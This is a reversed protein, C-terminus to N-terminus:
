ALAPLAPGRLVPRALRLPVQLEPVQLVARVAPMASVPVPLLRALQVRRAAQPLEVPVARPSAMPELALVLPSSARLAAPSVPVSM